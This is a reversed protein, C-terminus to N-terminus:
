ILRKKLYNELNSAFWVRSDTEHEWVYIDHRNIRNNLIIFAFLDSNIEDGFFMLNEFPMYLERFGEDARFDKNEKLIKEASWILNAGYKDSIGNTKNLLSKLEVPININLAVELELIEAHSASNNFKCEIQLKELLKEM